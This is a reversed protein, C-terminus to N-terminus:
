RKLLTFINISIDNTSPYPPPPLTIDIDLDLDLAFNTPSLPPPPPPFSLDDMYEQLNFTNLFTLKVIKEAGELGLIANLLAILIRENKEYGFVFKFILDNRLNISSDM